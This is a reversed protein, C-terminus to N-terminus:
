GERRLVELPPRNLIGRTNLLGVVMTLASVSFFLVVVQWVHVGVGGEFMFKALLMSFGVSLVIGVAAALGGLFLYELMTIVLVQRRSAGLTRLLVSEQIRQYRSVLVSAILVIVGTMMSFGAMFRIVFGIKGLVDDLVSLILGLDIVSIGPFRQVVARQFRASVEQSPVETTMLHFQPAQELVGTPFLVPFNIRLKWEVKRLSGVVTGVQMGQVDFGISDGIKVGLIKAYDEDLSIYVRDKPSRVPSGLRGAVLKESSALSDRYTVRVEHRFGRAREPGAGAQADGRTGASDAATNVAQGRISVIHTQVIPVEQVVPLRFQGALKRVDALQDPQIDFLVMNGQSASAAVTVRDMLLQEVFYLTGIFTTGLGITVVLILTQNNPRYLNAFGQRWLYNWREPFLRRVVWMLVLAAGALLLFAGLLSLTFIIAKSWRGMRIYSFWTVFFFIAAYVMGKWGDWGAISSEVSLRLTYLPSIKRVTLLPLLAFLMSIVMGTGIGEGIANWSVRFHSEMPLLDKLVAPLVQQVIVGAVAGLVSGILGIGAVQILYIMFAQRAKLGLCRLVAVGSIKERIYINVASAVGICGMLLAIFSIITLFETLDGFARTMAAKRSAVTEYRMGLSDLQQGLPTMLKDMNTGPKFLYYSVTEIRSGRRVLGSSDLYRLPIYVPPAVTLSIENRGPAKDLSGAIVFSLDGVRISDGVKAGYQLMLTKDVLAERGRRFGSGASVPTTELSGYYPYDGELARVQVLRSGQTRLFYVMSALSREESRKGGASDIMRVVAPPLARGGRVVLDAGVLTKAQDDIDERLNNGFSLTAVLAAIGLVVSSIFLFLRGRNRRSDRWAMLGLWSLRM